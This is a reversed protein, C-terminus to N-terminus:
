ALVPFVRDDKFNFNFDETSKNTNNAEESKGNKFGRAGGRRERVEPVERQPYMFSVPSSTTNPYKKAGKGSTELPQDADTKTKKKKDATPFYAEAEAQEQRSIKQFNSWESQDVGEGAARPKPLDVEAKQANLKDYYESLSLEVSEQKASTEAVSPAPADTPTSEPAVEGGEETPQDEQQAPTSLEEIESGPKGWSGKGSGAKKNENISRGTGSHRDYIRKQPQVFGKDERLRETRQINNGDSRRPRDEGRPPRDEGRPPRDEGRPPRDEGRPPRDEGRPPRDEGRPPRDDRSVFPREGRPKYPRDGAVTPTFHPSASNIDTQLSSQPFSPREGGRGRGEFTGGRSFGRGRGRGGSSSGGGDSVIRATGATSPAPAPAGGNDL